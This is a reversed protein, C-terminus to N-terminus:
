ALIPVCRARASRIEASAPSIAACSPAVVRFLVIGRAGPQQALGIEDGAHDALERFQLANHAAIVGGRSRAPTLRHTRRDARM